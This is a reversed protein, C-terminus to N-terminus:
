FSCINIQRQLKIIESILTKDKNKSYRKSTKSQRLTKEVQFNAPPNCKKWPIYTM